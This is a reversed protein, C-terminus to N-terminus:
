RNRWNDRRAAWGKDWGKSHGIFWGGLFAIALLLWVALIALVLHNHDPHPTSDLDIQPNQIQLASSWAHEGPDGRSSKALRHRTADYRTM